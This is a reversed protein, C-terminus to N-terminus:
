VNVERFIYGVISLKKNGARRRKSAISPAEDHSNAPSSCCEHAHYKPLFRSQYFFRYSPQHGLRKYHACFPQSWKSRSNSTANNKKRRRNLAWTEILREPKSLYGKVLLRFEPGFDPITPPAHPISSTCLIQHMEKVRRYYNKYCNNFIQICTRWVNKYSNIWVLLVNKWRPQILKAAYVM